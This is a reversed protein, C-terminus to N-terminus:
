TRMLVLTRELNFMPEKSDMGSGLFNMASENSEQLAKLFREEKLYPLVGDTGALIIDGPEIGIHDERLFKLAEKEGTFAGYSLTRRQRNFLGLKNRLLARTVYEKMEKGEIGKWFDHVPDLDNIVPLKWGNDKDLVAVFCDSLYGYWLEMDKPSIYAVAGVCCAYDTKWFDPRTKRTQNFHRVEENARLLSYSLLLSGNFKKMYDEHNDEMTHIATKCFLEAVKKADSTKKEIEESRYSLQTIGDAVAAMPYRDSVLFADELIGNQRLPSEFASGFIRM